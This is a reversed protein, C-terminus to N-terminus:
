GCQHKYRERCHTFFDERPKRGGCAEPNRGGGPPEREAKKTLEQRLERRTSFQEATLTQEGRPYM